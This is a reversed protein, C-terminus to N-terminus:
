LYGLAQLQQIAEPDLVVDKQLQAIADLFGQEEAPFRNKGADLIAIANTNDGASSLEKATSLYLATKVQAAYADALREIGAAVEAGQGAKAQAKLKIQEAQWILPKDDAAAQIAKDAELVAVPYDGNDLAAQAAEKMDAAKEGCGNLLGVFLAVLALRASIRNMANTETLPAMPGATEESVAFLLRGDLPINDHAAM